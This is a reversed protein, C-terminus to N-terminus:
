DNVTPVQWAPRRAPAESDSEPESGSDCESDARAAQAERRILRGTRLYNEYGPILLSSESRAPALTFNRSM